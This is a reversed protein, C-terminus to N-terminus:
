IGSDTKACANVVSSFLNYSCKEREREVRERERERERYIGRERGHSVYIVDIAYQHLNRTVVEVQHTIMNNIVQYYLTFLRVLATAAAVVVKM